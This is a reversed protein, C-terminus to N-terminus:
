PQKRTKISMSASYQPMGCKNLNCVTLFTKCSLFYCNPGKIIKNHVCQTMNQCPIHECMVELHQPIHHVCTTGSCLGAQVQIATYRALMKHQYLYISSTNTKHLALRCILIALHYYLVIAAIHHVIYIM